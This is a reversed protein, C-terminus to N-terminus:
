WSVLYLAPYIFVWAVDVFHWYKVTAEVGWYDDRGYHGKAALNMVVALALMGTLVHFAHLGITIFFVSGYLTQPPFYEMGERYEFYVGVMFVVGFLLTASMNRFFAPRDDHAIADEARFASVSSLLLVATILLALEQNLHEPRDVGLLYFRAAIVAAFLFSESAIFIWLGLRNARLRTKPDLSDHHGPTDVTTAAM